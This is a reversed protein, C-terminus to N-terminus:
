GSVWGYVVVQVGVGTIDKWYVFREYLIMNVWIMMTFVHLLKPVFARYDFSKQEIQESIMKGIEYSLISYM